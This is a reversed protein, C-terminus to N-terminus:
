PSIEGEFGGAPFVRFRGNASGVYVEKGIQNIMGNKAERDRHEPTGMVVDHVRGLLTGDRKDM